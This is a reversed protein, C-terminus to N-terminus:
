MIQLHMLHCAAFSIGSLSVGVSSLAIVSIQSPICPAGFSYRMSPSVAIATLRSAFSKKSLWVILSVTRAVPFCQWKMSFRPSKSLVCSRLFSVDQLDSLIKMGNGHSKASATKAPLASILM